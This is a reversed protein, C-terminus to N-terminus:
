PSVGMNMALLLSPCLHGHVSAQCYLTTIHAAPHLYEAMFFSLDKQLEPILAPAKCMSPRHQVVSTCGWGSINNYVVCTSKSFWAGHFVRFVFPYIRCIWKSLTGLISLNM